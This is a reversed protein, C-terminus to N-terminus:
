EFRQIIIPYISIRFIWNTSSFSILNMQEWNASMLSNSQMRKAVCLFRYSLETWDLFRREWIKQANSDFECWGLWYHEQKPCFENLLREGEDLKLSYTVLSWLSKTLIKNLQFFNSSLKKLFRFTSEIQNPTRKYSIQHDPSKHDTEHRGFLQNRIYKWHFKKM